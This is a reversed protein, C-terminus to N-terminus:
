EESMAYNTKAVSAQKSSGLSIWLVLKNVQKLASGHANSQTIKWKTTVSFSSGTNPQNLRSNSYDENSKAM